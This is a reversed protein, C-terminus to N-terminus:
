TLDPCVQVIIKMATIGATIEAAMAGYTGNLVDDTLVTLNPILVVCSNTVETWVIMLKTVFTSVQFVNVM